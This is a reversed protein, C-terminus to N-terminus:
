LLGSESCKSFKIRMKVLMGVRSSYGELDAVNGDVVFSGNGREDFFQAGENLAEENPGPSAKESSGGGM